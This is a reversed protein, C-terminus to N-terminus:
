HKAKLMTIIRDFADECRGCLSRFHAPLSGYEKLAKAELKAREGTHHGAIKSRLHHLEKLPEVIQDATLSDITRLIEHILKLSQWSTEFKVGSTDALKRLETAVFGEVVMQDLALLEDAWEKSSATVPYHVRDRV